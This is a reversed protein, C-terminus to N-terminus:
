KSDQYTHTIAIVEVYRQQVLNSFLSFAQKNNALLTLSELNM